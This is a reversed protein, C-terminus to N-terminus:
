SPLMLWVHRRRNRRDARLNGPDLWLAQHFAAAAERPRGGLYLELGQSLLAEVDAFPETSAADAM